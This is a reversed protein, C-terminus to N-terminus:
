KKKPPWPTEVVPTIPDKGAAWATLNDLVLQGMARRTWHTASAVHPLLVVHDM